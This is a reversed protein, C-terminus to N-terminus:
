IRPVSPETPAVPKIPEVGCTTINTSSPTPSPSDTATSSGQSCSNVWNQHAVDFDAMSKNYNLMQNDYDAWLAQAITTNAQTAWANWTDVTQTYSQMSQKYRWRDLWWQSEDSILKTKGQLLLAQMKSSANQNAFTPPTEATLAWGCGPGIPDQTLGSITIGTPKAPFIPKPTPSAPRSLPLNLTSSGSYDLLKVIKPVDIAKDPLSYDSNGMSTAADSVLQQGHIDASSAEEASMTAQQNQLWGLYNGSLPSRTSDKITSNINACIKTSLLSDWNKIWDNVIQDVSYRYNGRISVLGVIDGYRVWLSRAGPGSSLM